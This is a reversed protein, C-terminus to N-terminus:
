DGLEKIQFRENQSPVHELKMVEEIRKVIAPQSASVDNKESIDAELNYLEIELNGGFIDKRIGKWKGMRVAQQGNYSPFEWYLFEHQQQEQNFLTPKISIGDIDDPPRIGLLDCLTPLMDSFSSIYDNKTGAEIQNPWSAILPVRIGGEYVFGKTKGYGNTLPRSSEFFNFDVGGTYTPGNDSTFFVITNEYLGLEKLTAVLEGVQNDLYSIMAAYTARPYRCPFYGQDGLYPEEEGLIERYRDVYEKPAQLPLHPLPSAYYMFFPKDRNQKIFALAKQHMKEPAFEKQRFKAYSAEDFPDSLSDLKTGPAVIENELMMKKDNEWLYPPYLNHAQRQCNYGYFYDFGQLNPVGETEPAGLGWKGVIGTQYGAAKLLEALTVTSAPIPRQGELNIDAIAKTYNWVEGRERWEDNGRIVAHGAHKGTLFVCRSPACVPSGSYHQTFLMGGAALADINPTLIKKQGNIGLEGFGLDDALIYVVNPQKVSKNTTGCSTCVLAILISFILAKM